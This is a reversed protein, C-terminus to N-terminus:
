AILLASSHIIKWPTKKHTRCLHCVSGFVNAGCEQVSTVRMSSVLKNANEGYVPWLHLVCVEDQVFLNCVGTATKSLVQYLLLNHSRKGGLPGNWLQGTVCVRQHRNRQIVSQTPLGDAVDNVFTCCPRGRCRRRELRCWFCRHSHTTWCQGGTGAVMEVTIQSAGSFAPITRSQTLPLPVDTFIITIMSANWSSRTSRACSHSMSIILKLSNSTRTVKQINDVSHVWM